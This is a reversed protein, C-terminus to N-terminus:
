YKLHQEPPEAVSLGVTIVVNSVIFEGMVSGNLISDVCEGLSPVFSLVSEVSIECKVDLLGSVSEPKSFVSLLV